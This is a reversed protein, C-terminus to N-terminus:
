SHQGKKQNIRGEVCKIKRKKTWAGLLEHSDTVVYEGESVSNHEGCESVISEPYQNEGCQSYKQSQDQSYNQVPHSIFRHDLRDDKHGHGNGKNTCSYDPLEDVSVSGRIGWLDAYKVTEEAKEM